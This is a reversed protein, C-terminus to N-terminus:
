DEGEPFKPITEDAYSWYEVDCEGHKDVFKNGLNYFLKNSKDYRAINVHDQYTKIWVWCGEIPTCVELRNIREKNM